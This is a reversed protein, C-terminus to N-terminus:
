KSKINPQESFVIAEIESSDKLHLGREEREGQWQRLSEDVSDLLDASEPGSNREM